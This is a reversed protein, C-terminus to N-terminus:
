ICHHKWYLKCYIKYRALAGHRKELAKKIAKKVMKTERKNRSRRDLYYQCCDIKHEMYSLEREAQDKKKEYYKVMENSVLM